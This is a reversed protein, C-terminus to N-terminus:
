PWADPWPGYVDTRKRVTPALGNKPKLGVASNANGENRHNQNRQTNSGQAGLDPKTWQVCGSPSHPVLCTLVGLMYM